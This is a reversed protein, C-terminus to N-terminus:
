FDINETEMGGVVGHFVHVLLTQAFVELRNEIELFFVARDDVGTFEGDDAPSGVAVAIEVVHHTQKFLILPVPGIVGEAFLPVAPAKFVGVVPLFLFGNRVRFAFLDNEFIKGEVPFLWFPLSCWSVENGCFFCKM